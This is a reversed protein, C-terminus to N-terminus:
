LFNERATTRKSCINPDTTYVGDVDTYIECVDAHLAPPWHSPVRIPVAGDWHRSIIIRIWVRSDRWVVAIKGKELEGRLLRDEVDLIRAQTYAQDTM